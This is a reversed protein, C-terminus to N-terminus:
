HKGNENIFLIVCTAGKDMAEVKKSNSEFIIREAPIHYEEVLSKKITNARENFLQENNTEGELVTIYLNVKNDFQRMREAATYVNVEQMKDIESSRDAFSILINVQQSEKVTTPVEKLARAIDGRLRNLEDNLPAPDVYDHRQYTFQRNGGDSPNRFRYNVGLFVNAHGDWRKSSEVGDFSDDTWSNSAEFTLDLAKSLRFTAILGTRLGLLTNHERKFGDEVINWPRRSFSFTQEGGIGGFFILNFFRDEEYGLWMNTLNLLGDGYLSVSQFNFSKFDTTNSVGRNFGYIAQARMGISPSWWKGVQIAAAPRLHRFFSYEKQNSGWNYLGGGQIGIYWNDLLHYRHLVRKDSGTQNEDLLYNETTQQAQITTVSAVFVAVAAFVKRINM